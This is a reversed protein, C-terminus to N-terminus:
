KGRGKGGAQAERILKDPATDIAAAGPRREVQAPDRV